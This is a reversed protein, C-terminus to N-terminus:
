TGIDLSGNEFPCIYPFLATKFHFTKSHTVGRIIEDSIGQVKSADQSKHMSHCWEWLLQPIIQSSEIGTTLFVYQM